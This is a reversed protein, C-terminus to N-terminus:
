ENIIEGKITTTYRQERDETCAQILMSLLVWEDVDDYKDFWYNIHM